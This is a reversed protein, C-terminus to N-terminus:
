FQKLFRLDGSHFLRIDNIKYKMMTLRDLGMGFAFGQVKRHDYGVAEFVKPNVMGAGALELWGSKKCVSCGEGGCNVCSIDVEFSPETFPFYSPRLRIEINTKFLKSFFEQLVYKFNAVSIDEGVVLGDMQYFQVDHSADTAEYRYCRGPSIMRFPPQHTKMYRIQVPSTHTRLLLKQELDSESQSDSRSSLGSGASQRLWFTDWMDRAPHNAPINLADFNNYETEVEPGEAIEFGMSSFISVVERLVKSIPHIHGKEMKVGPRTVDLWEKKLFTALGERELASKKSELMEEIESRLKNAQEGVEKKEQGPLKSLQRLILNLAGDKRGFYKLRVEELSDLSEAKSIDDKANNGIKLIEELM